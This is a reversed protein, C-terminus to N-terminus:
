PEEYDACTVNEVDKCHVALYLPKANRVSGAGGYKWLFRTDPRAVSYFPVGLDDSDGVRGFWM